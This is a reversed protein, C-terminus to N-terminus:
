RSVSICVSVCLCLALILTLITIPTHMLTQSLAQTWLSSSSSSRSSYFSFPGLPLTLHFETKHCVKLWRSQRPPDLILAASLHAGHLLSTHMCISMGSLQALKASLVSRHVSGTESSTWMPRKPWSRRRRNVSHGPSSRWHELLRSRIDEHKLPRKQCPDNTFGRLQIDGDLNPELTGHGEAVVEDQGKKQAALENGLM